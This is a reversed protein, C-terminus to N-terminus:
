EGLPEHSTGNCRACQESTNPDVGSGNCMLCPSMSVYQHPMTPGKCPPKDPVAALGSQSSQVLHLPRGSTTRGIISFPQTKANSCVCRDAGDTDSPRM